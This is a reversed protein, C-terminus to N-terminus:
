LSRKGEYKEVFPYSRLALVVDFSEQYIEIIQYILYDKM